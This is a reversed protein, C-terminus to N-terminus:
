GPLGSWKLGKHAGSLELIESGTTAVVHEETKSIAWLESPGPSFLHTVSETTLAADKLTISGILPIKEGIACEESTEINAFTTGSTPELRIIGSGSSLVLLGKLEKSLIVGKEVGVHPECATSIKGNIAVTCGSKKTKIGFGFSGNAGINVNIDAAQKCLILVHSKIVKFLYEYDNGELEKVQVNPLLTATVNAGNVRWNAGTEASASSATLMLACAVLFCGYIKPGALFRDM